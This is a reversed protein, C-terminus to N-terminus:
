PALEQYVTLRELRKGGPDLLVANVAHRAPRDLTGRRLDDPPYSTAEVLFGAATRWDYQIDVRTSGRPRATLRRSFYAYQGGPQAPSDLAYIDIVLTVDRPENAVSAITVLYRNPRGRVAVTSEASLQGLAVEVRDRTLLYTLFAVSGGIIRGLDRLLRELKARV